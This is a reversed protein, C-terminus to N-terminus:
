NRHFHMGRSQKLPATEKPKPTRVPSKNEPKSRLRKIQCTKCLPEGEKVPRGCSSCRLISQEDEDKTLVIRRSEVWKSILNPTVGQTELADLLLQQPIKPNDRLFDQTLSLLDEEQQICEPCINLEFQNFLKGCHKCNALSM